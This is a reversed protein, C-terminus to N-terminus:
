PQKFIDGSIHVFDTGWFKGTHTCSHENFKLKFQKFVRYITYQVYKVVLM